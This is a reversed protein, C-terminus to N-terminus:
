AELVRQILMVFGHYPAAITPSTDAYVVITAHGGWVLSFGLLLSGRVLTPISYYFNVYSTEARPPATKYLPLEVPTRCTSPRPLCSARWRM